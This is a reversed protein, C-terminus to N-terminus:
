EKIIWSFYYFFPFCKSFIHNNGTASFRPKHIWPTDEKSRLLAAEVEFSGYIISFLLLFFPQTAEELGEGEESVQLHGASGQKEWSKMCLICFCASFDDRVTSRESKFSCISSSFNQLSDIIAWSNAHCELSFFYIMKDQIDFRTLVSCRKFSRLEFSFYCIENFHRSEEESFNM